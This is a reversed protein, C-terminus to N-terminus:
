SRNAGRRAGPAIEITPAVDDPGRVEAVTWDLKFKNAAAKVGDLQLQTVPNGLHYLFAFHRLKPLLNQLLEVQKGALDTTQVSLGTLNGGPRALSAVIGNRIPDGASAFVIPIVSNWQKAALVLPTSHTVIVDVNSHALEALVDSARHLHGELWHYKITVNQGDIWRLERLKHVFAATWGAQAAATAGGVLGITRMKTQQAHAALPWVAVSGLTCIFQRRLFDRAM